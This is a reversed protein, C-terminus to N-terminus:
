GAGGSDASQLAGARFREFPAPWIIEEPPVRVAEVPLRLLRYWVDWHHLAHRNFTRRIEAMVALIVPDRRIERRCVLSILWPARHWGPLVPVVTGRLLEDALFTPSLDVAIGESALLRTRCSLADEHKAKQNGPIRHIRDGCELVTSSSAHATDRMLLTHRALDEVTEPTGHTQLYKPTAMLFSVNIGAPEWYLDMGESPRYGFWAIDARGNAVAPYDEDGMIALRIGPHAAEFQNFTNLYVGREMNIPISVRITRDVIEDPTSPLDLAINQRLECESRLMREVTPLIRRACRSLVAPKTTRDLFSQALEKELNSIMRSATSLSLGLDQAALSLNGSKEIQALLRWNALNKSHDM